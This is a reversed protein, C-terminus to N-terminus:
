KVKSEIHDIEEQTLNFHQYIEQDTWPHTLDLKPLSYIQQMPNFGSHKFHDVIWHYLRSNLISVANRGEEESDFLILICMETFGNQNDFRPAYKGSLSVLVKPTDAYPNKDKAWWYRGGKAPTHYCPWPHEEDKERVARDSLKGQGTWSFMETKLEFKMSISISHNTIQKPLYKLKFIDIIVDGTDTIFRTSGSYDGIRVVWYTITTGVGSFFKNRLYESNVNSLILDNKKFLDIFINVGPTDEERSFWTSPTIMTIFGNSNTRDFAMKVFKGWLKHSEDNVEGDRYPPNGVILDFKM